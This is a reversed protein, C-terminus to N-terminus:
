FLRQFIDPLVVCMKPSPRAKHIVDSRASGPGTNPLLPLCCVM